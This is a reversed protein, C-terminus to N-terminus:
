AVASWLSLFADYRDSTVRLLGSDGVTLSETGASNATAFQSVTVADVTPNAGDACAFISPLSLGLLFIKVFPNVAGKNLNCNCWQCLLGAYDPLM